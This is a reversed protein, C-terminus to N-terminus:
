DCTSPRRPRQGGDGMVLRHSIRGPRPAPRAVGPGAVEHVLVDRRGTGRGGARPGPPHMKGWVPPAYALSGQRGDRAACALRSSHPNKPRRPIATRRPPTSPCLAEDGGVRFLAKRSHPMQTTEALVVVSVERASAGFLRRESRLGGSPARPRLTKRAHDTESVVPPSRPYPCTGTGARVRHRPAVYTPPCPSGGRGAPGIPPCPSGGRGRTRFPGHGFKEKAQRGDRPAPAPLPLDRHRGWNAQRGGRPAPAPLPLDRHRGSSSPAACCLHAPV